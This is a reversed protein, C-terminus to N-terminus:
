QRNPRVLVLKLPLLVAQAVVLELKQLCHWNPRNPYTLELVPELELEQEPVWVPELVLNQHHRGRQRQPIPNWIQEELDM